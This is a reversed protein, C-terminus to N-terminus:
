KGSTCQTCIQFTTIPIHPFDAFWSDSNLLSKLIFLVKVYDTRIFAQTMELYIFSVGIGDNIHKNDIENNGGARNEDRM